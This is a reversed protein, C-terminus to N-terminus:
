SRFEEKLAATVRDIAANFNWDFTKSFYYSMIQGKKLNRQKTEGQIIM